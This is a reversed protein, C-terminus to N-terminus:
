WDVHHTGVCTDFVDLDGNAGKVVGRVRHFGRFYSAALKWAPMMDLLERHVDRFASAATTSITRSDGGHRVIIALHGPLAPLTVFSSALQSMEALAIPHQSSRGRVSAPHSIKPEPPGCNDDSLVRLHSALHEVAGWRRADVAVRLADEVDAATDPPADAYEIALMHDILYVQGQSAADQM